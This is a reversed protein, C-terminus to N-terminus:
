GNREQLLMQNLLNKIVKTDDKLSDYREKNQEKASKQEQQVASIDEKVNVWAGTGAGATGLIGVVMALLALPHQIKHQM